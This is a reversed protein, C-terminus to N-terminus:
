KADPNHWRGTRTGHTVCAGRMVTRFRQAEEKPMVYEARGVIEEVPAASLVILRDVPVVKVDGGLAPSNCIFQTRVAEAKGFRQRWVGILYTIM